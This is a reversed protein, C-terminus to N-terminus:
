NPWISGLALGLPPKKSMSLLGADKVGKALLSHCGQLVLGGALWEGEGRASAQRLRGPGNRTEELLWVCSDNYYLSLQARLRSM